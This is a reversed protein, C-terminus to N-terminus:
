QRRTWAAVLMGAISMLLFIWMLRLLLDTKRWEPFLLVLVVMVQSLVASAFSFIEITNV